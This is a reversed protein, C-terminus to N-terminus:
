EGEGRTLSALADRLAARSTIGLKPFARYLHTGVTRPSLYLKEAIQKNTFGSAALSAVEFEQATLASARGIDKAREVVGTARLDMAARSAWPRAGLSNFTALAKSLHGRADTVARMRRLHEGFALEVRALDFPWQDCGQITVAGQFLATAEEGEAVVARAGAVVLALRLSIAELKAEEMARVHAAADSNRGTRVAAEVLGLLCYIAVPRYKPLEGPPAIAVACQYATEFDGQGLALMHLTLNWFGQVKRIRRPSAWRMVEAVITRVSEDDGRFAAIQSKTQRTTWGLLEYGHRECLRLGEDLLREAEDWRGTLIYDAALLGLASIALASVGGAQGEQIIRALVRRCAPLRDVYVGATAIRLNHLPDGQADLSAITADLYELADPSAHCPDVYVNSTLYLTEPLPGPFRSLAEEYPDWLEPRDGFACILELCHLAEGMAASDVDPDDGANAIALALLRHATDVDGDGNVLILAATIAEYLSGTADPAAQRAESLLRSADSLAGTMNSGIYAAEALRRGHVSKDPTLESSRILAAIAGPADGRRLVRHATYELLWAVSEDPEVTAEALHWARREPDGELAGALARHAHRRDEATSVNAVATRILPHRFTIRQAHTDISILQATDAAELDALGRPTTSAAQLIRLDGSSELAALLLLQRTTDPLSNIRSDFLQHLSRNGRVSDSSQTRSSPQAGTLILPLELLALPNGGAQELVWERSHAPLKPFRQDLLFSAAHAELPPLPLLPIGAHEFFDDEGPRTAGIMGVRSGTLRRSILALVTSSARDFWHLDDVAILTPSTGGVQKLLELTANAVM